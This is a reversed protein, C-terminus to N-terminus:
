LNLVLALLIAAFSALLGSIRVAGNCLDGECCEVNCDSMMNLMNCMGFEHSPDCLLSNSCNRMEVNQSGSGPVTITGKVTMCSDMFAGCKISGIEEDSCQSAASDPGPLNTCEYCKFALASPMLCVALVAVLLFPLTEM